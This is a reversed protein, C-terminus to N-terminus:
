FLGDISNRAGGVGRNGARAGAEHVGAWGGVVGARGGRGLAHARGGAGSAGGAKAAQRARGGHGRGAPGLKGGSARPSAPWSHGQVPIIDLPSRKRVLYFLEFTAASARQPRPLRPHSRSPPGSPSPALSPLPPGQPAAPPPLPLVQSATPSPSPPRPVHATLPRPYSTLAERAASGGHLLGGGHGGGM